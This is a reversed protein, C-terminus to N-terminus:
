PLELAMLTQVSLITHQIHNSSVRNSTRSETSESPCQCLASRLNSSSPLARVPHNQSQRNTEGPSASCPPSRPARPRRQGRGNQSVFPAAKSSLCHISRDVLRGKYFSTPHKPNTQKASPLAPDAPSRPASLVIWVTSRSEADFILYSCYSSRRTCISM